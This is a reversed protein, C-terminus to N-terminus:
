KAGEPLGIANVVDVPFYENSSYDGVMEEVLQRVHSESPADWLCIAKLGDQSPTITQLVVGEPLARTGETARDWFQQQNTITHIAIVQM